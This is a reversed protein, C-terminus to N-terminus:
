VKDRVKMKLLCEALNKVRKINETTAILPIFGFARMENM